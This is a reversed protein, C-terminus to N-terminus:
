KKRLADNRWLHLYQYDRWAISVIDLDGDHDLDVAQAGLHSERNQDITHETFNGHGDNAWVQLREHGPAPKGGYPMSHECTIIDIDGDGDMDATDLNNM